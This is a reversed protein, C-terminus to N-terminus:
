VDSSEILSERERPTGIPVEDAATLAPRATGLAAAKRTNTRVTDGVRREAVRALRDERDTVGVGNAADREVTRAADDRDSPRGDGAHLARRQHAEVRVADDVLLERGVSVLHECPAGGAWVLRAREGDLEITADDDDATGTRVFVPVHRAVPSPTPARRNRPTMEACGADSASYFALRPPASPSQDCFM